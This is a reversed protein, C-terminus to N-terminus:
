RFIVNAVIDSTNDATQSLTSMLQELQVFSTPLAVKDKVRQRLLEQFRAYCIDKKVTYLYFMVSNVMLTEMTADTTKKTKSSSSVPPAIRCFEQYLRYKEIFFHNFSKTYAADTAANLQMYIATANSGTLDGGQYVILELAELLAVVDGKEIDPWNILTHLHNQLTPDCYTCIRTVIGRSHGQIKALEVATAKQVALTVARTAEAANYKTTHEVMAIQRDSNTMNKDLLTAFLEPTIITDVSPSATADEVSWTHQEFLNTIVTNSIQVLEVSLQNKMSHMIARHSATDLRAIGISLKTAM